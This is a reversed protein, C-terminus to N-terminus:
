SNFKFLELRIAYKSGCSGENEGPFSLGSLIYPKVDFGYWFSRGNQRDDVPLKKSVILRERSKLSRRCSEKFAKSVVQLRFVDMVSLNSVVNDLVKEPIRDM